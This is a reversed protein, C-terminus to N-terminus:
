RCTRVPISRAAWNGAFMGPSETEFGVVQHPAAWGGCHRMVASAEVLGSKVRGTGRPLGLDDREFAAAGDLGRGVTILWVERIEEPEDNWAGAGGGRSRSRQCPATAGRGAKAGDRRAIVQARKGLTEM